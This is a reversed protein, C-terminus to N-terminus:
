PAPSTVLVSPPTRSLMATTRPWVTLAPSVTATTSAMFIFVGIIALIEPFTVFM